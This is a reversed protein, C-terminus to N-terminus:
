VQLFGRRLLETNPVWVMCLMTTKTQCRSGYRVDRRRGPADTSKALLLTLDFM